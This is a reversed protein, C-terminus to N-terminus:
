GIESFEKGEFRRISRGDGRVVLSKKSVAACGKESKNRAAGLKGALGAAFISFAGSAASSM